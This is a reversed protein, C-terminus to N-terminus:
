SFVKITYCFWVKILFTSHILISIFSIEEPVSVGRTVTKFTFLNCILLRTWLTARVICVRKTPGLTFMQFICQMAGTLAPSKRLSIYMRLNSKVRSAYRLVGRKIIGSLPALHRKIITLVYTSSGHYSGGGIRADCTKCEVKLSLCRCLRYRSVSAPARQKGWLGTERNKMYVSYIYADRM